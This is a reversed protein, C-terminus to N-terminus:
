NKSESDSNPPKSAKTESDKVIAREFRELPDVIELDEAKVAKGAKKPRIPIFMRMIKETFTEVTKNDDSM